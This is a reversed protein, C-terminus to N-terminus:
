GSAGEDLVSIELEAPVVTGDTWRQGETYARLLEARDAPGGTAVTACLGGVGDPPLAFGASRVHPYSLLLRSMQDGDIPAGSPHGGLLRERGPLPEVPVDAVSLGPERCMAEVTAIVEDLLRAASRARWVPPKARLTVVTAGPEQWVALALDAGAAHPDARQSEQFEQRPAGGSVQPLRAGRISAAYNIEFAPRFAVGRRVPERDLWDLLEVTDYMGLAQGRLGAEFVSAARREVTDSRAGVVPIFAAQALQAVAEFEAPRVRNASQTKFVMSDAGACRSVLLNMATAWLAYPSVGLARSGRPLEKVLSDPLTLQAARVEEEADRTGATFVCARPASRLLDKWADTNRRVAATMRDGAFDAAQLPPPVVEASPDALASDLTRYLLQQSVGDAFLHSVSLLVLRVRDDRVYARCTLAREEPDVAGHRVGLPDIEGDADVPADRVTFDLGEVAERPGLVLQRRGGAGDDVLRSRLAQHARVLQGVVERVREVSPGAPTLLLVPLTKRPREDPSWNKLARLQAPNLTLTHEASRTM